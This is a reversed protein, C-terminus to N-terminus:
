EGKIREIIDAKSKLGKVDINNEKAFARLEAINMEEFKDTNGTILDKASAKKEVPKEEDPIEVEKDLSIFRGRNSAIVALADVEPLDFNVGTEINKVRM